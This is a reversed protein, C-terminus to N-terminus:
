IETLTRQLAYEVPQDIPWDTVAVGSRELARLRLRRHLGGIRQGYGPGATGDPSVISCSYGRVALERGFEVPWNDLVPSCFVVKADPPLRTLLRETRESLDRNEGDGGDARASAPSAGGAIGPSPPRISLPVSDGTASRHTGRFLATAAGEDAGPDIWPLGDAGALHSLDEDLGVATLSTVVGRERLAEYVREAAYASLSGVTPYGAWPTVRTTPRCDVVVVTRAAREHRYQVTVFEGTKAAQRWHIRSMPDGSHYQRTSYFELGSGGSDTPVTGAYQLTSDSVPPTMATDSCLLARDGEAPVERTRRDTGALSRTRVVPAEFEFRGRQLVVTYEVVGVEGPALAFAGRSTGEVVGLEEPVGDAVRVDPLVSDGTNEVRVTVDVLEGPGTGEMRFERTVALEAARPLRSVSGYLAYGLGIVSGAVLVPEALLLGFALVFVAAAIGVDWRGRTM